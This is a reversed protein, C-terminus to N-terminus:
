VLSNLDKELRELFSEEGDDGSLLWDVRQAYVYAIRIVKIAERFKEQIEQPYTEYFREEPYKKYYDMDCYYDLPKEKGQNDLTSQISDAIDSIRSQIYDFHGGSM